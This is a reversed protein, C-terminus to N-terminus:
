RLSKCQLAFTTREISPQEGEIAEHPLYYYHLYATCVTYIVVSTFQLLQAQTLFRKLPCSVKMLALAYYSYVMVHIISNLLAGFYIDGGPSYSM